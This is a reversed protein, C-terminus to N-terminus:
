PSSLPNLSYLSGFKEWLYDLFPRYDLPHGCSELIVEGPLKSSAASHVKERLWSLLTGCHGARIQEQLDPIDHNVKRWMQAAVLNGLSYTPFYGILGDSWHIDQLCGLADSPPRIGLTSEMGQNWADPLDAADLTGALLDKELRFRLAIHLSYTVEDAEVRIFSPEVFNIARHFDEVSYGNLQLPFLERLRPFHAQWFPLGRGVMNEWLRSQSEHIGLSCGGGLPTGSWEPPCGQEYLGHGGEHLGGFISMPLWDADLRDTLRVDSSANSSCFPHASQDLRGHQFSFGIQELLYRSFEKQRPVEFSQQLIKRSLPQASAIGQVLKVLGPLLGDFLAEVQATTFGPEYEDILADYPHNSYGRCECVERTLRFVERLHPLFDQFRNNKRAEIWAPVALATVRTREEVLRTPLRSALDYTRRAQRVYAADLGQAHAEAKELAELFAPATLLQHSVRELAALQNARADTAGPPMLVQQDWYLLSRVGYLGWIAGCQEKLQSIPM